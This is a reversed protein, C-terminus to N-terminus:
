PTTPPPAAPTATAAPTSPAPAGPSSGKVTFTVGAPVAYTTEDTAGGVHVQLARHKGSHGGPGILQLTRAQAARTSSAPTTAVVIAGIADRPVGKSPDGTLLLTRGSAGRDSALNMFVRVQPTGGAAAVMEKTFRTFSQGCVIDMDGDLDLDGVALQGAGPLNVGSALTVDEFLRGDDAPDTRQRFIRLREDFPPADPYDGSALVLDLLGDNDVDVLECFLDGQNWTRTAAGGAGATGEAGAADQTPIRDVNAWAPSTFTTGIPNESREAILFRSRDSSPGAWAHAIETVFCDFLGDNNM